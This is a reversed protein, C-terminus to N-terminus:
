FNFRTKLFKAKTAYDTNAKDNILVEVENLEQLMSNMSSIFTEKNDEQSDKNLALYPSISKKPLYESIMRDIVWNLEADEINLEKLDILKDIVSECVGIVDKDIRNSRMTLNLDVLEDLANAKIEVQDDEKKKFENQKKQWYIFSGVMFAGLVILFFLELM